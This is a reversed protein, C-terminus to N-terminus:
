LHDGSKSSRLARFQVFATLMELTITRFFILLFFLTANQFNRPFQGYELTQKIEQMEDVIKQIKPLETMRRTKHVNCVNRFDIKSLM